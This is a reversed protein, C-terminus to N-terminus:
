CVLRAQITTRMFTSGLEDVVKTGGSVVFTTSITNGANMDIYISSYLQPNIGAMASPNFMFLTYTRSTAVANWSFSTHAINIPSGFVLSFTIRYKGTVPATFIGTSTNYGDDVSFIQTEPKITVVTGDGTVNSQSTNLRYSICPQAPYTLEGNAGVVVQTNSANSTAM